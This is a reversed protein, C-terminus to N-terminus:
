SFEKLKLVKTIFVKAFGIPDNFDIKLDFNKDSFIENASQVSYCEEFICISKGPL